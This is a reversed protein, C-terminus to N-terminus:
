LASRKTVESSITSLWNDAIIRAAITILRNTIRITTIVPSYKTFDIHTGSTSILSVAFFSAM